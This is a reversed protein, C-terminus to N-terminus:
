PTELVHAAIVRLAEASDIVGALSPLYEGVSHEEEPTGRYAKAKLGGPCQFSWYDLPSDEKTSNKPLHEFFALSKPEIDWGFKRRLLHDLAIWELIAVLVEDPEGPTNIDPRPLSLFPGRPETPVVWFMGDFDNHWGRPVPYPGRRTLEWGLSGRWELWYARATGPCGKWVALQRLLGQRTQYDGAKIIGEPFVESSWSPPCKWMPPLGVGSRVLKASLTTSM